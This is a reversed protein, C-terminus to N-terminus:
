PALTRPLVTTNRLPFALLPKYTWGCRCSKAANIKSLREHGHPWGLGGYAHVGIIKVRETFCQFGHFVSANSPLSRPALGNSRRHCHSVAPLQCALRARRRATLGRQPPISRNPWMALHTFYRLAKKRAHRYPCPIIKHPTLCIAPRPANIPM